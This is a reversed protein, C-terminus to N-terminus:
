GRTRPSCCDIFRGGKFFGPEDGRARPVAKVQILMREAERNMGAHAPFLPKMTTLPSNM